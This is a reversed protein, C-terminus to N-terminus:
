DDKNLMYECHSCVSASGWSGTEVGLSEIADSLRGRIEEARKGRLKYHRVAADAFEDVDVITTGCFTCEGAGGIAEAYQMLSGEPDEDKAPDELETLLSGVDPVGSMIEHRAIRDVERWDRRGDRRAQGVASEAGATLSHVVWRFLQEPDADWRTREGYAAQLRKMFAQDEFATELGDTRLEYGGFDRMIGQVLYDPPDEGFHRRYIFALASASLNQGAAPARGKRPRAIARRIREAVADSRALLRSLAGMDRLVSRPLDDDAGYVDERSLQAWSDQLLSRIQIECGVSAEEKGMKVPFQFMLHIARYGDDKPNAVYDARRVKLGEKAIDEQLLDAARRVDQLNNCVLRFGVIDQARSLAETFKWTRQGAKRRVSAFPKIRAGSIHGRVLYPDGLKRLAGEIRARLCQMAFGALNAMREYAAAEPDHPATM